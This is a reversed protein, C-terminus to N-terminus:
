EKLRKEISLRGKRVRKYLVEIEEGFFDDLESPLGSLLRELDGELKKMQILREELVQKFKITM